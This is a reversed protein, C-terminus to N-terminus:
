MVYLFGGSCYQEAYYRPEAAKRHLMCHYLILVSVFEDVKVIFDKKSYQMSTESLVFFIASNHLLVM